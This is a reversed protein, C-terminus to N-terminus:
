VKRFSLQVERAQRSTFVQRVQISQQQSQKPQIDHSLDLLYEVVTDDNLEVDSLLKLRQDLSPVQGTEDDLFKICCCSSSFLDIPKYPNIM